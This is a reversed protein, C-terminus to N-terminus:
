QHSISCFKFTRTMYLMTEIIKKRLMENLCSQERIPGRRAVVNVLARLQEMARIRLM